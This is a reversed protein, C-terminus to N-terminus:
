THHYWVVRTKYSEEQYQKQNRNWVKTNSRAAEGIKVSRGMNLLLSVTACRHANGGGEGAGGGGVCM